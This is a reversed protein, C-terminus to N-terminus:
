DHKDITVIIWGVELRTRPVMAQVNVLYGRRDEQLQVFVGSIRESITKRMQFTKWIGVIAQSICQGHESLM